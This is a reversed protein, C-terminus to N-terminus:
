TKTAPEQRSQGASSGVHLLKQSPEGPGGAEYEAFDIVDVESTKTPDSVHLCRCAAVLATAASRSKKRPPAKCDCWQLSQHEAREVKEILKAGRWDVLDSLLPAASHRLFERFSGAWAVRVCWELGESDCALMGKPPQKGEKVPVKKQQWMGGMLIAPLLM